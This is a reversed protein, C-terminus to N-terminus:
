QKRTMAEQQAEATGWHQLFEIEDAKSLKGQARYVLATMVAGTQVPKDEPEGIGSDSQWEKPFAPWSCTVQSLMHYATEMMGPRQELKYQSSSPKGCYTTHEQGIREPIGEQGPGYEMYRRIYEWLPAADHQMPLTPGVFIADEGKAHPDAADFPPHYLILSYYAAKGPAGNKRALLDYGDMDVIARLRDWDFVANGGCGRPRLLYVKRTVRNFRIRGRAYTFFCTRVGMIDFWLWLLVCCGLSLPFLLLWGFWLDASTALNESTGWFLLVRDFVIPHLSFGYFGWFILLCPLLVFVTGIGAKWQREWGSNCLELYTENQAYICRGAPLAADSLEVREAPKLLRKSGDAQVCRRGEEISRRRARQYVHENPFM